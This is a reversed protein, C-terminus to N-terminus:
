RAYAAFTIREPVRLRGLKRGSLGEDELQAAFRAGRQLRERAPHLMEGAAAADPERAEFLEESRHAPQEGPRLWSTQREAM